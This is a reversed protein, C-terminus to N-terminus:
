QFRLEPSCVSASYPCIISAQYSPPAGSKGNNFGYLDESNLFLIVQLVTENKPASLGTTHRSVFDCSVQMKM